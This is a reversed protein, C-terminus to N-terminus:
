VTTTAGQICYYYYYALSDREASGPSNSGTQTINPKIEIMKM